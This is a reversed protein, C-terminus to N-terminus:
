TFILKLINIKSYVGKQSVTVAIITIIKVNSDNTIVIINDFILYNSLMFTPRVRKIKLWNEALLLSSM